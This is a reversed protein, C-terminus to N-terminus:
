RVATHNQKELPARRRYRVALFLTMGLCLLESVMPSLWIGTEGALASLTLLCATLLVLGRGVSIVLSAVPREISAFFAAMIVNFGIIPFASSFLRLARLTDTYLAGSEPGFFLSVITGAGLQSGAFFLAAMVASSLLAYRLIRHCGRRDGMGHRLSTLPQMGQSLGSMTMLVLTNVYSVVTYSIIGSEGMMALIVRNFLFIIFGNSLETIGDALGIPIIRRYLSLDPKFRGFHLKRGRLLFYLVFVVTSTMQALGTALAAGRIGLGLREILLYDLGVNALACSGVGIVSLQPAGDVKVLVELNYSIIFFVAFCATIGVYEKTYELIQGRAGLFRCLPDLGLLTMATILLGAMLAVTLNQNFCNKAKKDEGQGFCISVVTATGTAIVLGLAFLVNIFPLSLNVAALAEPSVWRAVFIGDVITYTSFAWM